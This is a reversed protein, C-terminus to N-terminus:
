IREKIFSRIRPMIEMLRRAEQPELTSFVETLEGTPSFISSVLRVACGATCIPSVVVEAVMEPPVGCVALYNKKQGYSTRKHSRKGGM